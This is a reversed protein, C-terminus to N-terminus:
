SVYRFSTASAGPLTQLAAGCEEASATNVDMELTLIGAFGRLIDHKQLVSLLWFIM